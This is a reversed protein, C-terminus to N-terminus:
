DHARVEPRVLLAGLTRIAEEIRPSWPHGYNLRICNEFGHSVSFLPGPAVSIGREIALRHLAMADIPERFRLWLFYGGEPQTQQTGEPLWRRIAGAMADRQAQLALRIKKLHREYGGHELYDAIGAQVPISASLTTMLKLRQVREAFRGASAWGVRYGPALTKSFSGCHMVLGRRDFAMAPPPYNPAYHLEGYVDDEILPVEHRALLEVLAQKKEASLTVGTPNQFNTMFWCARIPHKELAQALADLDLGATPDVPIEVARLGLREIAQLAVYFGPSEVAVIDGPQTVAMLCLNLAELAGNTVVIDDAPQSIGVRLYRLAIQRRLNENGPPLDVVTSWPSVNRAAQGLSKALRSLPFLLPSPFASGLPVIGPQKAADLVSFVLESIDVTASEGASARAAAEPANAPPAVYYGSREEALVLGWQELLYYARSVTSQSVGHQAIIQRLSPMRAGPALNGSRIEVAMSQALQEYRTM